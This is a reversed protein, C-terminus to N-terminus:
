NDGQDRKDSVSVDRVKGADGIVVGVNEVSEKLFGTITVPKLEQQPKQQQEQPEPQSDRSEIEAVCERCLVSGEFSAGIERGLIVVGCRSCVYEAM